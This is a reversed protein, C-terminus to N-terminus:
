DLINRVMGGMEEESCNYLLLFGHGDYDSLERLQLWELMLTNKMGRAVEKWSGRFMQIKCNQLSLRRLTGRHRQLFGLFSGQDSIFLGKIKLEKLCPWMCGVEIIKFLYSSKDDSHHIESQQLNLSLKKLKLASSFTNLLSSDRQRLELDFVECNQLVKAAQKLIKDREPTSDFFSLDANTQFSVLKVRAFFAANILARFAQCGGERSLLTKSLYVKLYLHDRTIHSYKMMERSTVTDQYGRSPMQKIQIFELRPLRAFVCALITPYDKSREFNNFDALLDHLLQSNQDKTKNVSLQGRVPLWVAHRFDELHLIVKKVHCPLWGQHSIKLLSQVGGYTPQTHIVRFLFEGGIVSFSPYVLWFNALDVKSHLHGIIERVIENPLRDM